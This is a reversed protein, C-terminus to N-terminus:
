PHNGDRFLTRALGEVLVEPPTLLSLVVFGDRDFDFFYGPHVVVGAALYDLALEEDDRVRPLRVIASWGGEVPLLTLEPRTAIMARLSALNGATRERIASRIRPAIALLEPLAAQVPTSVSLYTDAIMELAAIAERKGPGSVQIWGLKYHPLGASKSLGGLTFCLLDDRVISHPETNFSFPLFVEDAIVPLGFAAVGNQEDPTVYSGTPNNPNILLIARTRDDVLARLNAVPLEWRRHLELAFSRLEILELRALHELLPYSPSAGIVNDGPDTLLKFLFGYAESTSATLILDDPHCRLDRALAERASLEGRPTAGYPARAARGMIDALEDLPYDISVQTPNSITLDLLPGRHRERALALRNVERDSHARRSFVQSITGRPKSEFARNCSRVPLRPTRAM